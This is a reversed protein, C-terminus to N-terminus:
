KLLKEHPGTLIQWYRSPAQVEDALGLRNQVKYRLRWLYPQAPATKLSENIHYLALTLLSQSPNETLMISHAALHHATSSPHKQALAHAVPVMAAANQPTLTRARKETQYVPPLLIALAALYLAALVTLTIQAKTKGSTTAPVNKIESEQRTHKNVGKVTAAMAWGMLVAMLVAVGPNHPSFDVWGHLGLLMLAALGTAAQPYRGRSTVVTQALKYAMIALTLLWLATAPLGKEVAIELWSNHAHGIAVKNPTSVFMRYVENYTGAGYGVWPNAAIAKSSVHNIAARDVVAAHAQNLRAELKPSFATLSVLAMVFAILGMIGWFPRGGRAKLWIIGYWVGLALLTAALAGRSLTLLLAIMNLLALVMFPWGKKLSIHMFVKSRQKFTARRAPPLQPLTAALAHLSLLVGLGAVTGFTNRNIFTASLSEQYFVKPMALVWSNGMGYVVLGYVSLGSILWVLGKHLTQNKNQSILFATVFALGMALTTLLPLLGAAPNVSLYFTSTQLRAATETYLPHVYAMLPNQASFPMLQLATFAVSLAAPLLWLALSKTHTDGRGGAALAALGTGILLLTHSEVVKAGYGSMGLALGLLLCVTSLAVAM